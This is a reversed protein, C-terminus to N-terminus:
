LQEKTIFVSFLLKHLAILALLKFGDGGGLVGVGVGLDVNLMACHTQIAERAKDSIAEQWFELLIPDYKPSFPGLSGSVGGFCTVNRPHQM